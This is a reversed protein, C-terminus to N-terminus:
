ISPKSTYKKAVNCRVVQVDGHVCLSEVLKRPYEKDSTYVRILTRIKGSKDRPVGPMEVTRWDEIPPHLNSITYEIADLVKERRELDDPNSSLPLGYIEVVLM